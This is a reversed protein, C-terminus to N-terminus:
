TFAVERERRVHWPDLNLARTTMSVESHLASWSLPFDGARRAVLFERDSKSSRRVGFSTSFARAVGM